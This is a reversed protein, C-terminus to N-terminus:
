RSRVTSKRRNHKKQSNSLPNNKYAKDTIGYYIGKKRYEQKREKKAYAKDAFIAREEGHLLHDLEESDHTKATTTTMTHICRSRSDVGAHLKMGFHYNNNKKTSSM